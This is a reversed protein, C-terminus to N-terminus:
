KLEYWCLVEIDNKELYRKLKQISNRIIEKQSEPIDSNKNIRNEMRWIEVSLEILDKLQPSVELFKPVVASEIDNRTNSIQVLIESVDTLLKKKFDGDTNNEEYPMENVKIEKNKKAM